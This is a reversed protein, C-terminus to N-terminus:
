KNLDQLILSLKRALQEETADETKTNVPFAMVNYYNHMQWIELGRKKALPIITKTIKNRIEQKRTTLDEMPKSQVLGTNSNLQKDRLLEAFSREIGGFHEVPVKNNHLLTKIGTIDYGLNFISHEGADALMITREPTPPEFIDPREPRPVETNKEQEEVIHTISNEIDVAHLHLPEYNPYFFYAQDLGGADSRNRIARGMVQEFFLRTTINHLYVIVRIRPINVGESIMQVSVLWRKNGKSFEDIDSSDNEDSTIVVSDPLNRQIEKAIEISSCVILGAANPMMERKCSLWVDAESIMGSVFNQDARIADTFLQKHKENSQQLIEHQMLLNPSTIQIRRFSVPCCVRDSVSQSYKYSYDTKLQWVQEGQYPLYSAFPIKENDHRFPTGTLSLIFGCHLGIEQIADGWSKTDALHHVEDLILLTKKNLLPFNQNILVKVNAPNLSHFTLSIGDFEKRFDNAFKFNWDINKGLLKHYDKSWAKKVNESPSCIVVKWGASLFPKSALVAASTKGSGVGAHLMYYNPVSANIVSDQYKQFPQNVFEKQWDRLNFTQMKNSKLLNCKSCLAQGNLIETQGGKSYPIVHDAHWGKTLACGCIQCIGKAIIFLEQKQSHSFTRM